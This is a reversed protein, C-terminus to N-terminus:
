SKKNKKKKEKRLLKPLYDLQAVKKVTANSKSIKLSSFPSM